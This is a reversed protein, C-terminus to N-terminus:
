NGGGQNQNQHNIENIFSGINITNQFTKTGSGCSIASANTNVTQANNTGGASTYNQQTYNNPQPKTKSNNNLSRPGTNNRDANSRLKVDRTIPRLSTTQTGIVTNNM